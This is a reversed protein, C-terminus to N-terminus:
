LMEGANEALFQQLFQEAKEDPDSIADKYLVEGYEEMSRATGQQFDSRMLELGTKNCQIYAFFEVDAVQGRYTTIIDSGGRLKIQETFKLTM